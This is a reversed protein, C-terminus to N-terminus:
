LRIVGAREAWDIKDEKPKGAQVNNAGNKVGRDDPLYVSKWGNLIATELMRIKLGDDNGGLEDLKTLLIKLARDSMPSKINKRHKIFDILLEKIDDNPSYEDILPVLKKDVGRYISNSKISNSKLSNSKTSDNQISVNQISVNQISVNQRYPKFPLKYVNNEWGGENRKKEIVIYGKDILLKRHKYFRRESIQLDGCMLSISPYATNGAGTYSSLYAYIAKAEITLEKDKMIIKPIFGYGKEMIGEAQFSQKDKTM